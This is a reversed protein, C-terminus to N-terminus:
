SGSYTCTVDPQPVYTTTFTQRKVVEGGKRFIRDVDVTFGEVPSQPICKPDDDVIRPPRTVDYRDSKTATVDWTKTGYFTVRISTGTTRVKILIGGDTTNTWKHHLDPYSITAERGEPYRSIYYSHPSWADLQVGAFFAANFVTTSVQSLGGGYSEAARNNRIIGAEVYGSAATTTDGLVDNLSFQEGPLVYTGDVVGGGKQINKVRSQCCPYYTTFSSIRGKPLTARVKATTWEPQTRRTAVEATRETGAIARWVEETVSDDDLAVGPVSRKVTPDLGRFTVTADKAEIEAGADEAAAHVVELLRKANARPTITGDEAPRLVIARAFDAPEVSFTVDGAVVTVPASVAVDAFETRVRQFESAPVKPTLSETAVDVTREAPWQSRVADVTGEVDLRSGPVPARYSVEGGKVSLSGERPKAELDTRVGELAADFAGRDVTVVAPAQGGGSLHHWVSAPALSFGTLSDATAATDVAIGLDAPELEATGARSSLTVPGEVTAALGTTLADAAEQRSMGGIDVGAVTTGRPVKEGFWWAVGVYGLGLAVLLALLVFPWWRRQPTGDEWTPEWTTDLLDHSM